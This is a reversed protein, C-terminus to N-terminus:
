ETIELLRPPFGSHSVSRSFTTRTQLSYARLCVHGASPERGYRNNELLQNPPVQYQVGFTKLFGFSFASVRAYFRDPFRSFLIQSPGDVHRKCSGSQKTCRLDTVSVARFHNLTKGLGSTTRPKQVFPFIASTILIKASCSQRNRPFFGKSRTKRLISCIVWCYCYSIGVLLSTSFMKPCSSVNLKQVTQVEGDDIEKQTM